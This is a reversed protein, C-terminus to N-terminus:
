VKLKREVIPFLYGALFGGVISSALAQYFQSSSFAYEAGMYNQAFFFLLVSWIVSTILANLIFPHKNRMDIWAAPFAYSLVLVWNPIHGYLSSARNGYFTADTMVAYFLVFFLATTTAAAFGPFLFRTTLLISVFLFAIVGAGWFGLIHYPGLPFFPVVIIFILNFLAALILNGMIRRSVLDHEQKLATIFLVVVLIAMAFLLLHPPSWIMMVSEVREVGVFRHWLEDLPAIFPMVLLASFIHKWLKQHTRRMLIFSFILSGIIGGYIFLHPFVFFSERGRSLHWWADFSAGFAAILLTCALAHITYARTM